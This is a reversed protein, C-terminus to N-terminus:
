PLPPPLSSRRVLIARIHWVTPPRNPRVIRAPPRNRNLFGGPRDCWRARHTTTAQRIRESLSIRSLETVSLNASITRIDSLNRHRTDRGTVSVGAELLTPTQRNLERLTKVSAQYSMYPDSKDPTTNTVPLNLFLIEDSKSRGFANETQGFEMTLRAQVKVPDLATEVEALLAEARRAMDIPTDEEALLTSLINRALPLNGKKLNVDALLVKALKSEPDVILVRELTVMAGDLDGTALQEQFLAFNLQLNTPDAFVLDILEAGEWTPIQGPPTQGANPVPPAPATAAALQVPPTTSGAAARETSNPPASM